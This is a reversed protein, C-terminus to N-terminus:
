IIKLEGDFMAMRCSFKFTGKKKPTFRYENKMGFNMDLGLQPQKVFVGCGRLSGDNKIVVPINAKITDPKFYYKGRVMKM